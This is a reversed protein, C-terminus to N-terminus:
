RKSKIFFIVFGIIIVLFSKKGVFILFLEFGCFVFIIEILLGNAFGGILTLFKETMGTTSSGQFICSGPEQVFEVKELFKTLFGCREALPEDAVVNEVHVDARDLERGRHLGGVHADDVRLFLGRQALGDAVDDGDNQIPVGFFLLRKKRAVIRLREDGFGLRGREVRFLSFHELAAVAHRRKLFVAQDVSARVIAKTPSDAKTQHSELLLEGLLVRRGSARDEVTLLVGDAVEHKACSGHIRREVADEEFESLEHRM